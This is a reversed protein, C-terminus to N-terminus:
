LHSVSVQTPPHSVNQHINSPSFCTGTHTPPHFVNQHINQLHSVLVQTPPHLVHQHINQLHSVQVMPPVCKSPHKFTLFLYMHRHTSCIIKKHINQLHSVPKETAPLNLCMDVHRTKKQQWYTSVCIYIYIDMYKQIKRNSTAQSVYGYTGKKPKKQNQYTSVSIWTGKRDSRKDSESWKSSPTMCSPSWLVCSLEVTPTQFLFEAAMGTWTSLGILHCCKSNTKHIYNSNQVHRKICGM